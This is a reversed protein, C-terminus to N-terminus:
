IKQQSCCMGLHDDRDQLGDWPSEELFELAKLQEAREALHEEAAALASADITVVDAFSVGIDAARGAPETFGYGPCSHSVSRLSLKITSGSQIIIWM